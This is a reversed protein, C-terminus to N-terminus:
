ILYAPEPFIRYNLSHFAEKIVSGNLDTELQLFLDFLQIDNTISIFVININRKISDLLSKLLHSLILNM